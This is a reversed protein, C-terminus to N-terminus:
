SKPQGSLAKESRDSMGLQCEGALSDMRLGEIIGLM